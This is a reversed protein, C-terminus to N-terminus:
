STSDGLIEKNCNECLLDEFQIVSHCEIITEIKHKLTNKENILEHIIQKDRKTENRMISIDVKLHKIEKLKLIYKENLELWSKAESKGLKEYNEKLRKNEQELKQIKDFYIREVSM